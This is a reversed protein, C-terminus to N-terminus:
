RRSPRCASRRIPPSRRFYATLSSRLTRPPVRDPVAGFFQDGSKGNWAKVLEPYHSQGNNVMMRVPTVAKDGVSRTRTDIHREVQGCHYRM